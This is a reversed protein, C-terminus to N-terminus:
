REKKEKSLWWALEWGSNKTPHIICQSFAKCCLWRMGCGNETSWRNQCEGEKTWVYTIGRRLLSFRLGAENSSPRQGEKRMGQGSSRALTWRRADEGHAWSRMGMLKATTALIVSQFCVEEKSKSWDGDGAVGNMTKEQGCLKKLHPSFHTEQSQSGQRVGDKRNGKRIREISGNQLQLLEIRQTLNKRLKTWAPLLRPDMWEVRQFQSEEIDGCAGFQVSQPRKWLRKGHSRNASGLSIAVERKSHTGEKQSSGVFEAVLEKADTWGLGWCSDEKNEWNFFVWFRSELHLCSM